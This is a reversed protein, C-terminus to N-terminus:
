PTGDKLLTLSLYPHSAPKHGAALEDILAEDDGPATDLVLYFREFDPAADLQFSRPLALAGGEPLTGSFHRTVGGRGDVSLVLARSGVYPGPVVQLQVTDGPAVSAGDSLLEPGAETLRHVLLAPDGKIRVGGDEQLSGDRLASKYDGMPVFTPWFLAVGAAIVALEMGWMWRRQRRRGAAVGGERSAVGLAMVRAPYRVLIENNDAQLAELRHLEGAAELRQRVEAAEAEPLEGLALRELLVQPVVSPSM